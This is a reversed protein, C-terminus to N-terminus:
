KTKTCSYGVASYRGDGQSKVAAPLERLSSGQPKKFYGAARKTLISGYRAAVEAGAVQQILELSTAPSLPTVPLCPWGLGRPDSVTTILVHCQKRAPPLWRKVRVVQDTKRYQGFPDGGLLTRAGNSEECVWLQRNDADIIRGIRM